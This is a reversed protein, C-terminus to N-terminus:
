AFYIHLRNKLPLLFHIESVGISLDNAFFELRPIYGNPDIATVFIEIPQGARFVAGDQPQQIRISAVNTGPVFADQITVEAVFNSFSQIYPRNPSTPDHFEVPMAGLRAVVSEPGEVLGDTTAFVPIKVANSGAPFLVAIPLPEYDAATATGSYTLYVNLPQDLHPDDRFVTFEGPVVLANPLPESTNPQTAVISVVPREEVPLGALRLELDFSMDTSFVAVQHVEVAIVNTHRLLNSINVLHTRPTNEDGGANVAALTNHGVEGGPMGDRAVEVGNIYVVAGDDRILRIQAESFQGPSGVFFHKRFYATAPHPPAPELRTVTAEDGDGYGLHATGLTWLSSNYELSKWGPLPAMERNWYQWSQGFGITPPLNTEQATATAAGFAVCVLFSRLFKGSLNVVNMVLCLSVGISYPILRVSDTLSNKERPNNASKM